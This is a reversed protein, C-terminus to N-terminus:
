SVLLALARCSLVRFSTSVCLSRCWLVLLGFCWFVLLGLFWFVLVGDSGSVFLGLCRSVSVRVVLGFGFLVLVSLSWSVM